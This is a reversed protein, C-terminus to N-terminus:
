VEDLPFVQDCNKCKAYKLKGIEKMVLDGSCQNCLGVVKESQLINPQYKEQNARNAHEMSKAKEVLSAGIFRTGFTLIILLVLEGLDSWMGSFITALIAFPVVGVGLLFLGIFVAFAGWLHYTLLLGSVWLTAGFVWSAFIMIGGVLSRTKSFIALPLLIVIVVVLLLISIKVLWPHIKDGLWVSSHVFLAILILIIAISAIALLNIGNSKFKELM